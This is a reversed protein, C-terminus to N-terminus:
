NTAKNLLTYLLHPQFTACPPTRVVVHNVEVALVREHTTYYEMDFVDMAFAVQEQDEAYFYGLFELAGDVSGYVQHTPQVRLTWPEFKFTCASM